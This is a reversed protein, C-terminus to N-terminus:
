GASEVEYGFKYFRFGYNKVSPNADFYGTMYFDKVGNVTKQYCELYGSKEDNAITKSKLLFQGDSDAVPVLEWLPDAGEYAANNTLEAFNGSKWMVIKNEGNSFSYNGNEDIHVTWLLDEAPDQIRDQGAAFSPESALMYWDSYNGNQVARANGPNYIVVVDGDSLQEVPVYLAHTTKRELAELAARLANCAETVQRSTKGTDALVAQAAALAEDVVALSEPTYLNRELALAEAIAAELASTDLTASWVILEDRARVRLRKSYLSSDDTSNAGNAEDVDRSGIGVGEIMMGVQADKLATSDKQIYANLFFMAQEGSGDDVYIKDIVGATRHIETITGSVKMLNGINEDRMAQACSVPAPELVNLDNSILQISGNYEPSLNLEIEGCYYTIGGHVRVQEGICYYGSVPFCNIGRTEDQVYICDFFATDKDFDSANSTVWGEITFEQGAEGEHLEAIPTIHEKM